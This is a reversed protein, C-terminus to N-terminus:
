APGGIKLRYGVGRNVDVGVVSGADALKRRLRSIAAELANGSVQQEFGYLRDELMDKVVIRGRARILEELVSAERRSLELPKDAVQATRSAPDFSVDGYRYAAERRVGPRRLVARIRAELEALNFPKVIYDDAGGNLGGIRDEIRDRATVILAPPRNATEARLRRLVDMGDMDPLGLDLVVADYATTATAALADEGRAFADAAFGRERFYGAIIDRMAPHDEIILLRM